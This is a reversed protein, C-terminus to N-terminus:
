TPTDICSLTHNSSPILPSFQPFVTFTKGIIETQKPDHRLL